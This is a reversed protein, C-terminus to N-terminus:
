SFSIVVTVAIQQGNSLNVPIDIYTNTFPIFHGDYSSSPPLHPALGVVNTYVNNIKGDRQATATGSLVLKCWNPDGADTPTTVTLNKFFFADTATHSSEVIYGAHPTSGDLFPHDYLPWDELGIRWGGVSDQRALFKALTWKGTYENEFERREALSGDPNRVEITWHGHVKIGEEPSGAPASSIAPIPTASPSSIACGTMAMTAVLTTALFIGLWMHIRKRM